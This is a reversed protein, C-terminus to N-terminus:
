KKGREALRRRLEEIEALLRQNEVEKVNARQAEAEARQAESEARQAEAEARELAEEIEDQAEDPTLIRLGTEADIVRLLADEARFFVNLERSYIDGSANPKIPQYVGQELRFGRLQPKLYENLPDFLIYENVGLFEYLGKKESIDIRGTGRSTIEFIVCPTQKEEWLKYVRRDRKEIGKVVYVDPVIFESPDGEVYYFLMDAAVYLKEHQRAFQRLANWLFFIAKIHFDTEGLPKGDTEPYVVEKPAPMPFYPHELVPTLRMAGEKKHTM